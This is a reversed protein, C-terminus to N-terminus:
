YCFPLRYIIIQILAEEQFTSIALWVAKKKTTVMDQKKAWDTMVIHMDQLYFPKKSPTKLVKFVKEAPKLPYLAEQFVLM